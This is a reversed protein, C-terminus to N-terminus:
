HVFKFHDKLILLVLEQLEAASEIEFGVPEGAENEYLWAM